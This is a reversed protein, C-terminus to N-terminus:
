SPSASGQPPTGSPPAPMVAELAAAVKATALNLSTALATAMQTQADPQGTPHAAQLARQLASTSVGLKNALTQLTATSLGGPGPTPAGQQATTTSSPATSGCGTVAGGFLATTGVVVAFKRIRPNMIAVM